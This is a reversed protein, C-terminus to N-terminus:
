VYSSLEPDKDVVAALLGSLGDLYRKYDPPNIENTRTLVSERLKRLTGHVDALKAKHQEPHEKRLIVRVNYPYMDRILQGVFLKEKEPRIILLEQRPEAKYKAYSLTYGFLEKVYNQAMSDSADSRRIFDWKEPVGFESPQKVEAKKEAPAERVDLHISYIEIKQAEHVKILDRDQQTSLFLGHEGEKLSHMSDVPRRGPFKRFTAFDMIVFPSSLDRRNSVFIHLDKHDRLVTILVDGREPHLLSQIVIEEDKLLTSGHGTIGMRAKLSHILGNLSEKVFSLDYSDLRLLEPHTSM